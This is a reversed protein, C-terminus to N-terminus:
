VTNSLYHCSPGRGPMSHCPDQEYLFSRNHFYVEIMIGVVAVVPGPEAGYWGPCLQRQTKRDAAPRCFGALGRHPEPLAIGPFGEDGHGGCPIGEGRRPLQGLRATQQPIIEDDFPVPFAQIVAVVLVVEAAHSGEIVRVAPM